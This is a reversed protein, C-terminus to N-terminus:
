YLLIYIICIFFFSIVQISNASVIYLYYVHICFSTLALILIRLLTDCHKPKSLGYLYFFFIKFGM